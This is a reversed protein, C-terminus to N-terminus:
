NQEKNLLKKLKEYNNNKIEKLEEKSLKKLIKDIIYNNEDCLETAEETCAHTSFAACYKGGQHMYLQKCSESCNSYNDRERSFKVIEGELNITLKM